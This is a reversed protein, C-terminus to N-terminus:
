MIRSLWYVGNHTQIRVQKGNSGIDEYKIINSIYIRAEADDYRPSKFIIEGNTLQVESIPPLSITDKGDLSTFNLEFLSRVRKVNGGIGIFTLTLTVPSPNAAERIIVM